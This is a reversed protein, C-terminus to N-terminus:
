VTPASPRNGSFRVEGDSWLAVEITYGTPDKVYWSQSHPYAVPSAFYTRINHLKLTEEWHKRDAIRLGFHYIRHLRKHEPNGDQPLILDPSEYACLMSDGARLVGWPHGGYIGREVIEFGFVKRYWEASDEFNQVSLNLHDLGLTKM